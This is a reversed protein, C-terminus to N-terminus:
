HTSVSYPYKLCANGGHDPQNIELKPKWLAAQRKAAEKESRSMSLEVYLKSWTTRFGAGNRKALLFWKDATTNDMPVGQGMFYHWALNNQANPHGQNASRMYWKVAEEDNKQIGDGREYLLALSYQADDNGQDAARRYYKAAELSNQQVGLGNHYMHAINYQAHCEGHEAAKSFLKAAENFDHTVCRGEVYLVGLAYQAKADGREADQRLQSIQKKCSINQEAATIANLSTNIFLLTAGMVALHALHSEKGKKLSKDNLEM